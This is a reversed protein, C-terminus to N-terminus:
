APPKSRFANTLMYKNEKIKDWALKGLIISPQEVLRYIILSLVLIFPYWTMCIAYKILPHIFTDPFVKGLVMGTLGIIPQHFLYFSYSVVGLFSLHSWCLHLMKGGWIEPTSWRGSIFRDIAIATLWSFALFTFATTPKFLPLLFSVIAVVEFRASFLRSTRGRLFCEALYAGLSWSLWCGFPSATIFLPLAEDNFIIRISSVARILIEVIGVIMLAKRWGLRVTMLILLPYIAYLQIEVAISWFSPNIGFFSREDLNHIAFIHSGLQALRYFSDIQLYGWPWIFFFICIALLYAPYIRFFRRIFFCAWRKDGSRRHSLHICFGSVVFFIAVGASGYTLPYLFLFSRSTDFDRFMGVWPLRDFGFSTGLSHFLFVALIAIGRIGDLFPLHENARNM